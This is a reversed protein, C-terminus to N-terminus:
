DKGWFSHPLDKQSVLDPINFCESGKGQFVQRNFFIEIALNLIADLRIGV